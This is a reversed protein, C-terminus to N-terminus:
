DPGPLSLSPGPLRLDPGPLDMGLGPHALALPNMAKNWKVNLGKFTFTRMLVPGPGLVLRFRKRLEFELELDERFKEESKKPM